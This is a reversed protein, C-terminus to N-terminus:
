AYEAIPYKFKCQALLNSDTMFPEDAGSFLPDAGPLNLYECPFMSSSYPQM